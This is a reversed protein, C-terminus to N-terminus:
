KSRDPRCVKGEAQKQRIGRGCRETGGRKCASGRDLPRDPRFRRNEARVCLFQELLQKVLEILKFLQKVFQDDM